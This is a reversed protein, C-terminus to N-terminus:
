GNRWFQGPKWGRRLARLRWRQVDRRLDANEKHLRAVDAESHPRANKRTRRNLFLIIGTWIVFALVYIM